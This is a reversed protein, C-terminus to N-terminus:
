HKTELTYVQLHSQTQICTCQRVVQHRRSFPTRVLQQRGLQLPLQQHLGGALQTLHPDHDAPWHQCRVAPLHVAGEEQETPTDATPQLFAISSVSVFLSMLSSTLWRPKAVKISPKLLFWVCVHLRSLRESAVKLAWMQSTVHLNSMSGM